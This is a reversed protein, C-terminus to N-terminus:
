QQRELADALARLIAVAEPEGKAAALVYAGVAIFSTATDHAGIHGALERATAALADHVANPRPTSM